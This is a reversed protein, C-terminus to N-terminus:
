RSASALSDSSGLLCFNYYATITGSCELRPLETSGFCKYIRHGPQARHSTGTIGANQSTLALLDSSTLIKLGAQSVHHFEMETPPGEEWGEARRIRHATFGLCINVGIAFTFLPIISNYRVHSIVNNEGHQELKSFYRKDFYQFHRDCCLTRRGKTPWPLQIAQAWSNSGLRPLTAFGRESTLLKLGAQGVHYFGTEVTIRAVRSASAPSDSSGLLCLNCHASIRGNCELRPLLSSVKNSEAVKLCSTKSLTELVHIEKEKEKEEEKKKSVSDQETAWTPTCHGSRPESCGRGGLNLRNEKRLRGLLEMGGCGSCGLGSKKALCPPECRYDWCKPLGVSASQKLGPLRPLMVFRWKQFASACSNSSDPLPLNCHALIAGSLQLRSGIIGSSQSALAPPDGSPPLELGAQGVRHFGTEVLFVCNVPYPPAHRYDWSSSLCLCLFRKFGPSPPQPSGLDHWRVGAQAVLTFSKPPRPLHIVFDLSRSWGPWCPSVGDRSFICFNAPRPPMHRYDWSSPLSLCSFQKFGPPPPQLSGLVHWQVGAQCYLLVGDTIGAIPQLSTATLRSQVLASWGPHCLSVRDLLKKKKKSISDRETVWAPTCHRLRSESCGRDELNLPNEQRLRMQLGSATASVQLGLVEYPWLPHIVSTLFKLGAQDVHCFGMEVSFLFILWTHHCTGTIRAIQSASTPSDRLGLLCLNCPASITGSCKLRPLLALSWALAQLFKVQHLQVIKFAHIVKPPLSHFDEITSGLLEQGTQAVFHSETEVSSFNFILQTHHCMSTTGAVRSASTPPDRSGLLDLSCHATITGTCELMASLALCRGLMAALALYYFAKFTKSLLKTKVRILTSQLPGLKVTSLVVVFRTEGTIRASQSALTPPDGSTWLELGAQGVHHFRTEVLFVFILRAHHQTGTIEAVRSASAASDSSRLLLEPNYRGTFACLALPRRLQLRIKSAWLSPSERRLLWVPRWRSEKPRRPAERHPTYLVPRGKLRARSTGDGCPSCCNSTSLLSCACSFGPLGLETPFPPGGFSFLSLSSKKMHKNAVYIDEKSFAQEYGEDVKQHPKKKKYIQKLEKYMRSILEKDYLYSAFNKEWETPQWNVRIITGQATCFSKLKILDWKDIKDKTAMTKPIKTMFDKGIGIEQITNGINEELIKM